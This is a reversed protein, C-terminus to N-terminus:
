SWVRRDAALCRASCNRSIDTWPKSRTWCAHAARRACTWRWRDIGHTIPFGHGHPHTQLPGLDLCESVFYVHELNVLWAWAADGRAGFGTEGDWQAAQWFELSDDLSPAAEAADLYANVVRSILGQDVTELEAEAVDKRVDEVTDEVRSLLSDAIKRDSTVFAVSLEAKQWKDQFDTEAVSVEFEGRLRDRLSNVVMRKSRAIRCPDVVNGSMSGKPMVM